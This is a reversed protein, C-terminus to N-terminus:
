RLNIFSKFPGNLLIESDVKSFRISRAVEKGGSVFVLRYLVSYHGRSRYRNEEISIKDIEYVRMSVDSKIKVLGILKSIKIEDSSISIKEKGGFHWANFAVIFVSFFYLLVNSLGISIHHHNLSRYDLAMLWACGLLVIFSIVRGGPPRICVVFGTGCITVQVRSNM